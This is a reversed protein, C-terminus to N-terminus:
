FKKGIGVSLTLANIHGDKLDYVFEPTFDWGRALHLEYGVGMRFVFFDEHGELEVGPGLLFVLDKGYPSYFIPLSLIVPNERILTEESNVDVFYSALEIDSKFGVALRTNFWYQVDLGWTPLVVLKTDSTTASPIYGHGMTAAIRFHKFENNTSHVDVDHGVVLSHEQSYTKLNLFLLVILLVTIKNTNNDM